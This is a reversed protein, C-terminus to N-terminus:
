AAGKLGPTLVQGLHLWGIWLNTRHCVRTGFLYVPGILNWKQLTCVCLCVCLALVGGSFSFPMVKDSSYIRSAASQSDTSWSSTYQKFEVTDVNKLNSVLMYFDSFKLYFYPNGVQSSFDPLGSM